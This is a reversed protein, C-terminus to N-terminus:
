LFRGRQDRKPKKPLLREITKQQGRNLTELAKNDANLREIHEAAWGLLARYKLLRERYPDIM